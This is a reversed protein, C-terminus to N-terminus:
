VVEWLNCEINGSRALTEMSATSCKYPCKIEVLKDHDILGDPICVLFKHEKDVCKRPPDVKVNLIQELKNVADKEHEQGWRTM